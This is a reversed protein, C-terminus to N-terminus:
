DDALEITIAYIVPIAMGTNMKSSFAISAVPKERHPNKFRYAYLACNPYRASGFYVFAVKAERNELGTRRLNGGNVSDSIEAHAHIPVHCETGDEYKIVYELSTVNYDRNMWGAQHLFYFYSVKKNGVSVDPATSPLHPHQNGRLGICTPGKSPDLLFFPVNGFIQKGVPINPSASKSKPDASYQQAVKSLDLFCCKEEKPKRAFFMNAHERNVAQSDSNAYHVKKGPKWEQRNGIFFLRTVGKKLSMTFETANEAILKEDYIEYVDSAKPLRITHEGDFATHLVLFHKGPAVYDNTMSYVHVGAYSAINRLIDNGLGPAVSYFHTVNGRKKMAFGPKGNEQVVGLIEASTDNISFLPGWPKKSADTESTYVKGKLDKFLPNDSTMRIHHRGYNREAEASIGTIREINASDYGNNTVYGPAYFWLATAGNVALKREIAHIREPPMYISELFVYFKYNKLQPNDMDAQLIVDYGVGSTSLAYHVETLPGWMQPQLGYRFISQDHIVLAVEADSSREFDLSKMGIERCKGLMTMIDPDDCGAYGFYHGPLWSMYGRALSYGFNRKLVENTEAVTKCSGVQDFLAMVSTRTDDEWYFLKGRLKWSGHAMNVITPEGPGRWVYSYPSGILDVDPSDYYPLVDLHGAAQSYATVGKKRWEGGSSLWGGIYCAFTGTLKKRHTIKKTESLFTRIHKGIVDTLCQEFDIIKQHKRPNRLSMDSSELREGPTPAEAAEFTVEADNWANRLANVNGYKHKLMTRFRAIMAPSYDSFFVPGGFSYAYNGEHYAPWYIAIRSGCSSKELATIYARYIPLAYELWKDSAVSPTESYLPQENPKTRLKLYTAQNEGTASPPNEKFWQVAVPNKLEAQKTNLLLSIRIIFRAKADWKAITEMRQIIEKPDDAFHCLLSYIHLEEGAFSKIIKQQVNGQISTPAFYPKGEMFLTPTQHHMRVEYVGEQGSLLTAIFVVAFILLPKKM